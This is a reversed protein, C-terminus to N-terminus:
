RRKFARGCANFEVGKEVHNLRHAHFGRHEEIDPGDFNTRPHGRRRGAVGALAHRQHGIQPM